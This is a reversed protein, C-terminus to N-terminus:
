VMCHLSFARNIAYASCRYHRCFLFLFFRGVVIISSNDCDLMMEAVVCFLFDSAAILFFIGGGRGFFGGEEFLGVGM